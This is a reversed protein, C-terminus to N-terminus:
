RVQCFPMGKEILLRVTNLGSETASKSFSETDYAMTWLQLSGGTRPENDALFNNLNDGRHFDISRYTLDNLNSGHTVSGITGFCKRVEQYFEGKNNERYVMPTQPYTQNGIRFQAEHIACNNGTSICYATAKNNVSELQPRVLLGKLSRVRASVTHTYTGSM